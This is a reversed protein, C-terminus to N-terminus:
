RKLAEEFMAEVASLAHHHPNYQRGVFPRVQKKFLRAGIRDAALTVIREHACLLEDVQRMRGTLRYNLCACSSGCRSKIGCGGCEDPRAGAFRALVARGADRDFGTDIHGIRFEDSELFEICPYIFGEPDIAIQRVGAACTERRASAGRTHLSIKGDFPALHFDIGQRTWRGYRRALARYQSALTQLAGEDWDAGFDLTSVFLRSGREFLWDTARALHAANAPTIVQYTCFPTKSRCLAALSQAVLHSTPGGERTRRGIDQAAPGGDVSLSIFLAHERAFRCFSDDLLAGNTSIKATILAERAAGMRMFRPLTTEIVDRRLLPEGGFYTLAVHSHGADLLFEVAREAVRASMGPGPRHQQYCYACAFNCDRTLQLVVQM